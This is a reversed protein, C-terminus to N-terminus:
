SDRPSPSTYLLCPHTQRITFNPYGGWKKAEMVYIRRKATKGNENLIVTVNNPNNQTVIFSRDRYKYIKHM